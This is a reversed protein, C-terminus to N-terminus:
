IYNFQVTAKKKINYKINNYEQIISQIGNGVPKEPTGSAVTWVRTSRTNTNSCLTRLCRKFERRSACTTSSARADFVLATLTVGSSLTPYPYKQPASLRVRGRQWSMLCHCRARNRRLNSVAFSDGTVAIFSDGTLLQCTSKWQKCCCVCIKYIIELSSFLVLFIFGQFFHVILLLLLLLAHLLYM